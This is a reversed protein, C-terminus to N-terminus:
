MHLIYPNYTDCTLTNKAYETKLYTADTNDHYERLLFEVQERLQWKRLNDNKVRSIDSAKM